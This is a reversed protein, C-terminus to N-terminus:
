IGNAIKEIEKKASVEDFKQALISEKDILLKALNYKKEWKEEIQTILAVETAQQKRIQAIASIKLDSRLSNVYEQTPIALKKYDNIALTNGIEAIKANDYESKLQNTLERMDATSNKSLKTRALTASQTPNASKLIARHNKVSEDISQRYANLDQPAKIDEVKIESPNTKSGYSKSYDMLLSLEKMKGDKLYNGVINTASNDKLINDIDWTRNFTNLDMGNPLKATFNTSTKDEQLMAWEAFNVAGKSAYDNFEKQQTNCLRRFGSLGVNYNGGFVSCANVKVGDLKSALACIDTTDVGLKFDTNFCANAFNVSNSFLNDFKSDLSSLASNLAGGAISNINVANVNGCFFAIGLALVWVRKILFM